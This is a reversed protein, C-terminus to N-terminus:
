DTVYRIHLPGPGPPFTGPISELQWELLTQVLGPVEEWDPTTLIKTEMKWSDSGIRGSPRCRLSTVEWFPEVDQLRQLDDVLDQCTNAAKQAAGILDNSIKM